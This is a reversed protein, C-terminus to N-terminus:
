SVNKITSCAALVVGEHNRVVIGIGIRGNKQDM